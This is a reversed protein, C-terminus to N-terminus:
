RVDIVAAQWEAASMSSLSGDVFGLSTYETLSLLQREHEAENDRISRIEEGSLKDGGNRSDTVYVYHVEWSAQLLRLLVGGVSIVADDNHPQFIVARFTKKLNASM